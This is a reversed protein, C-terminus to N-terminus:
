IGHKIRNFLVYQMIPYICEDYLANIRCSFRFYRNKNQAREDAEIFKAIERISNPVRAIEELKFTDWNISFSSPEKYKYIIIETDSSDGVYMIFGTTYTPKSDPIETISCSKEFDRWKVRIDKYIQEFSEIALDCLEYMKINETSEIPYTYELTMNDIDLGILTKGADEIIDRNYKVNYLNHLISEVRIIASYLLNDSIINNITQIEGLLMYYKMEYDFPVSSLWDDHLVNNNMKYRDCVNNSLIM